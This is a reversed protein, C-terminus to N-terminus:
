VHARGIETIGHCVTWIGAIDKYPKYKVGEIEEILPSALMLAAGTVTAAIGKKITM